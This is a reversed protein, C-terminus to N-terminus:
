HQKSLYLFMQFNVKLDAFVSSSLKNHEQFFFPCWHVWLYYMNGNNWFSHFIFHPSVSTKTKCITSQKGPLPIETFNCAFHFNSFRLIAFSSEIHILMLSLHVAGKLIQQCSMLAVFRKRKSCIKYLLKHITVKNLVIRLTTVQHNSFRDMLSCM